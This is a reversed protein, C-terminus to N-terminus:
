IDLSTRSNLQLSTSILKPFLFHSFHSSPCRPYIGYMYHIINKGIWGFQIWPSRRNDPRYLSHVAMMSRRHEAQSWDTRKNTMSTHQHGPQPRAKWRHPENGIQGSTGLRAMLALAPESVSVTVPPHGQHGKPHTAQKRWGM